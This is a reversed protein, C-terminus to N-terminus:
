DEKELGDIRHHASKTSEEVKILRTNVDEIKRDAAKLDLRIDDVGKSIYDLKLATIGESKGEEKNDKEKLRKYGLYSLAAGLITYLISMEINM